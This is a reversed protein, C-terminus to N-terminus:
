NEVDGFFIQLWLELRYLRQLNWAAECSSRKEQIQAKLRELERGLIREEVYRRKRVWSAGQLTTAIEAFQSVVSENVNSTFDAKWRRDLIGDPVVGRMAKRLLARPVAGESYVEPPAGLLFCIVEHDWFPFAIEMGYMSTLKNSEEFCSLYYPSETLGCLSQAHFSAFRSASETSQRWAAQGARQRLAASYLGPLLRKARRSRLARLVFRPAFNKQYRLLDYCFRQRFFSPEVDTM